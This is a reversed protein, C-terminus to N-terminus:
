GDSKKITYRKWPVEDLKRKRMYRVLDKRGYFNAVGDSDQAVLLIPLGRFLTKLKDRTKGAIIKRDLIRKQVVVVVFTVGHVKLVAAEFENRKEAEPPM